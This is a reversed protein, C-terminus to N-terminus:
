FNAGVIKDGSLRRLEGHLYRNDDALLDNLKLVERHKLTNSMAIVLPEKLLTVWQLDEDKFKEEGESILVLYGLTDGRARLVLLIVSTSPLGHFETMERSVPFASPDDLLFADTETPANGAMDRATKSLPTLLDLKNFEKEDAYAITRMAQFDHDYHQLFIKIM